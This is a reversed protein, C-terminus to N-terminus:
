DYLCLMSMLVVDVCWWACVGIGSVCVGIIVCVGVGTIVGIGVSVDGCCWRM